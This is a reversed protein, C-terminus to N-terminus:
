ETHVVQSMMTRVYVLLLEYRHFAEGRSLDIGALLLKLARFVEECSDAGADLAPQPSVTEMGPTTPAKVDPSQRVGQPTAAQWVGLDARSSALVCLLQEIEEAGYGRLRQRAHFSGYEARM